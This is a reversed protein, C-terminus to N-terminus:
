AQPRACTKKTFNIYVWLVRKDDSHLLALGLPRLVPPQCSLPLHGADLHQHPTLSPVHKDDRLLRLGIDFIYMLVPSPQQSRSCAAHAFMIFWNYSQFLLPQLSMVSHSQFEPFIRRRSLVVTPPLARSAAEEQMGFFLPRRRVSIMLRRVFDPSWQPLRFLAWRRDTMM